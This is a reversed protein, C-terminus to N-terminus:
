LTLIGLQQFFMKKKQRTIPERISKQLYVWDNERKERAM